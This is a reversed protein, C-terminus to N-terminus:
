FAFMCLPKSFNKLVTLSFDAPRFVTKMFIDEADTRLAWCFCKINTGQLSCSDFEAGHSAQLHRLIIWVVLMKVWAFFCVELSEQEGEKEKLEAELKAARQEANSLEGLTAEYKLRQEILKQEAANLGESATVLKENASDVEATLQELQLIINEYVRYM